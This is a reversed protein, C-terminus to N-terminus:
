GQVGPTRKRGAGERSGGSQKGANLEGEFGWYMADAREVSVFKCGKILGCKNGRSVGEPWIVVRGKNANPKGTKHITSLKNGKPFSSKHKKLFEERCERALCGCSRTLNKTVRSRIKICITGCECRYSYLANSWKNYGAPEIETLRNTKLM